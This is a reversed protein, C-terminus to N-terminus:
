LGVADRVRQMVQDAVANARQAGRSLVNDIYSKDALIEDRRKRMPAFFEWLKGFLEKKFDGYGTGGKRFRERM